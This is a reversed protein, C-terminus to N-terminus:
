MLNSLLVLGAVVLAGLLVALTVKLPSVPTKGTTKGSYGNVFFNYIKNKWKWHGVYLPLLLYKYKVDEYSTQVNFYSVVDYDYQSLIAMKVNKDVIGRAQIWCEECKKSYQEAVYGHLFQPSYEKSSHTDFPKLKDVDAQSIKASAQVLVDDFFMDFNGSVYFYRIERVTTTKGNRTVTRYYYKGLRGQYTSRTQTDFTFAPSYTGKIKGAKISQKFNKPAFWKKKAWVVANEGATKESVAFPVVGNPKLGSIEDTKVINTTGCFSCSKAIDGRNLIERAGCNDCRFVHTEEGWQNATTDFILETFNKEQSITDLNIEVESGCFPCVLKQKEPAFIMEARCSPCQGTETETQVAKNLNEYEIEQM